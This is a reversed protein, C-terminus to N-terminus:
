NTSIPHLFGRTIRSAAEAVAFDVSSINTLYPRALISSVLDSAMFSAMAQPSEWYYVGGYTNTDPNSLWTKALLVPVDALVPADPLVMERQYDAPSINQLQYTILQLHM